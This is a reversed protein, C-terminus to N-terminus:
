MQGLRSPQQCCLRSPIWFGSLSESDCHPSAVFEKFVHVFGSPSQGAEGLVGLVRCVSYLLPPRAGYQGLGMM